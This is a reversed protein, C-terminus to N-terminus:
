WTLMPTLQEPDVLGHHHWPPLDSDPSSSATTAAPPAVPAAQRQRSRPRTPGPEPAPQPEEALGLAATTQIWGTMLGRKKAPAHEAVYVVAGGYEGGLAFGQLMRMVLLLLTGTLM